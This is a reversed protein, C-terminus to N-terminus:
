NTLLKNLNKELIIFVIPLKVRKKLVNIHEDISADGQELMDGLVAIKQTAHNYKQLTQLALNM